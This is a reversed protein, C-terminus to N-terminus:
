EKCAMKKIVNKNRTSVM